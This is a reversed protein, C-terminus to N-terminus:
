DAYPVTVPVRHSYEKLRDRRAAEYECELGHIQCYTCIPDGSCKVESLGDAHLEQRQDQSIVSKTQPLHQLSTLQFSKNADVTTITPLVYVRPEKSEDNTRQKDLKSIAM